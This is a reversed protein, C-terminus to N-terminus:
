IFEKWFDKKFLSIIKYNITNQAVACDEMLTRFEKSDFAKKILPLNKVEDVIAYSYQTLGLEGKDDIYSGISSIRGNSWILKPTGFFEKKVSSYWLKPESESNITYSCPYKFEGVKEPSMNKKDSGYTSRSYLVEAREENPKALLSQFLDYSANPLFELGNVNLTTETGDQFKVKTNTKNVKTKELTYIDYRTEAGFTKLGQSEDYIEISKLDYSFIKKQLEKQNGSINRWNSPHIMTMTGGSCLLKLSKEVISDWITQTKGPGVQLQYPPNGIIVDFKMNDVVGKNIYEHITIINIKQEYDKTIYGVIYRTSENEIVLVVNDNKYQDLRPNIEEDFVQGRYILVVNRM